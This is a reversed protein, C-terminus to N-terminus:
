IALTDAGSWDTFASRPVVPVARNAIADPLPQEGSRIRRFLQTVGDAYADLVEKERGEQLSDYLAEAVRGLGLHRMAIDEEILASSLNGLVAAVRGQAQRRLFDLQLHRDRAAVYGHVRYADALTTAYIHVRGHLDRVVDVPGSLNDIAMREDVDVLDGLPGLRSDPRPSPDSSCGGLAALLIWLSAARLRRRCSSSSDSRGSAM